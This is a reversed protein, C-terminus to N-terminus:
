GEKRKDSMKKLKKFLDESDKKGVKIEKGKSNKSLNDLKDFLSKEHPQLGGRVEKRNENYRQVLEKAKSPHSKKSKILDDFHSFSKSKTSFSDFLKGRTSEKIKRSKGKKLQLFKNKLSSVGTKFLNRSRNVGRQPRIALNSRQMGAPRTQIVNGRQGGFIRKGAPLQTYFYILYGTGGFSTLLGLIFLVWAVIDPADESSFDPTPDLTTTNTDVEVEPPDDPKDALCPNRFTRLEDINSVTDNDYDEEGDAIGNDNSDMAVYSLECGTQDYRKEWYDPLGDGDGDKNEEGAPIEGDACGNESVSKGPTTGACLDCSDAIGDGDLDDFSIKKAGTKNNDNVDTAFYCVWQSKDFSLKNGYLSTPNCLLASSSKGYKLQGCGSDDDCIIEASVSNCSENTKIRVSPGAKDILCETLNSSTAKFGNSSKAASGKNGASDTASIKLYYTENEELTLGTITTGNITYITGNAVVEGGSASSSSSSSSSSSISSSDDSSNSSNSSSGGSVWDAVKEESASSTSSSTGGKYLEYHYASISEENTQVQFTISDLGCSKHGDNVYLVTPATKDVTFKIEGERVDESILCNVLYQYDKEVLSGIYQVHTTSGTLGFDNGDYTCYANKNTNVQLSVNEGNIFGTPSTSEINGSASYDVDFTVEEVSTLDGAGNMCQIELTYTKKAGEFSFVFKGIHTSNLLNEELGPFSFEMTDFEKSGDGESNDSFKCVTKDDTKAQVTVEIGEMILTPEVSYSLLNPPSPDYELIMKQSPGIEGQADQCKVYLIKSGGEEEYVSLVEGPFEPYVYYNESDDNTFIKYAPQSDYTFVSNFEFKCSETNLKSMIKWDFEPKNSIGFMDGGYYYMPPNVLNIGFGEVIINGCTPNNYVGAEDTSFYCIKTTETISVSSNQTYLEYGDSFVYECGDGFCYYTEACPFGEATCEFDINVAEIFYEEWYAIGEVKVPREERLDETLVVQTDPGTFDVMFHFYDELYDGTFSEFCVVMADGAHVGEFFGPVPGTKHVKNSENLSVFAASFEYASTGEDLVYLECSAGVATEVQFEIETEAVAGDREPYVFTIDQELDFVFSENEINVNGHDDICESYFDYIVGGLNIFEFEKDQERTFSVSQNDEGAPLLQELTFNCFIPESPNSLYIQLDTKDATTTYYHEISFDPLKNDVFVYTEQINEQNFYKDQSFFRLLYTEGAIIKGLLFPTNIANVVVEETSEFGSYNYYEFDNCDSADASEMCLGVVGMANDEDSGTFTLNPFATSIIVLSDTELITLPSTTDVKCSTYDGADFGECDDINDGNGDKICYGGTESSNSESPVWLCKGWYCRDESAIIEGFHNEVGQYGTCELESSYEFCNSATSTEEGCSNCTTIKEDSFCRGLDTCIEPTCFNDEFLSADPSCLNCQDDEQYNDTVCYGHGTQETTPFLFGSELFSSDIIRAGGEEGYSSTANVWSCGVGLCNNIKCSEQSHYEFCTELSSCELCKDSVSSTFDFYCFNEFGTVNGLDPGYCTENDYYLGFPIADQSLINCVGANKCVANGPSSETCYHDGYDIDLDACDSTEILTNGEDCSYIKKRENEPTLDDDLMCFYTGMEFGECRKDGLTISVSSAISSRVQPEGGILPGDTYVAEILYVYTKGWELEDSNDAFSDIFPSITGLDRPDDGSGSESRFLRYGSVEPCPKNWDLNVVLNGTETTATFTEGDIPKNPNEGDFSCEGIYKTLVLELEVVTDGLATPITVEYGENTLYDQFSATILWTGDDLYIEYDGQDFNSSGVYTGNVYLSVGYQSSDATGDDDDDIMTIGNVGQFEISNILLFQEPMNEEIVLELETISYDHRSLVFSYNGTPLSSINFFGDEESTECGDIPGTYCITAMSVNDGEPESIVHGFLDSSSDAMSLTFNVVESNGSGLNITESDSIYGLASVKVVYTGPMVGSFLHSGLTSSESNSSSIEIDAGIILEGSSNYVSVEISGFSIEIGCISSLCYDYTMPDGTNGIEFTWSIESLPLGNNEAEKVCDSNYDKTGCFDGVACCGFSCLKAVDDELVPAGGNYSCIVAPKDECDDSCLVEECVGFLSESSCAVGGMFYTDFNECDENGDCDAEASDKSVDDVCLLDPHAEPFTYCGQIEASVTNVAILFFLFVLFFNLLKDKSFTTDTTSILNVIVNFRKRISLM